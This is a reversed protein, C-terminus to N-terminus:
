IEPSHSHGKSFIKGQVIGCNCCSGRRGRFVAKSHGRFNERPDWIEFDKEDHALKQNEFGFPEFKETGGKDLPDSVKNKVTNGEMVVSKEQCGFGTVGHGWEVSEAVKESVIDGSSGKEIAVIVKERGVEIAHCPPCVIKDSNFDAKLDSDADLALASEPFTKSESDSKPFPVESINSDSREIEKQDVLAESIKKESAFIEVEQSNKVAFKENGFSSDNELGQEFVKPESKKSIEFGLGVSSKESCDVNKSDKQVIELESKGSIESVFIECKKESCQANESNELESIKPFEMEVIEFRKEFCHTSESCKEITKLDLKELSESGLNKFNKESIHVNESCKEVTEFDFKQSFELDVNKDVPPDCALNFLENCVKGADCATNDEEPQDAMKAEEHHQPQLRQAPMDM